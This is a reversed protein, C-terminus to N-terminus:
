LLVLPLTEGQTGVKQTMAELFLMRDVSRSRSHSSGPPKTSNELATAPKDGAM